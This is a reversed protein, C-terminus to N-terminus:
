LAGLPRGATGGPHNTSGITKNLLPKQLTCFHGDKGFGGTALIVARKARITQPTGSDKKGFRYGSQIQAGSVAGDRDVVLRSLLCQTRITVGMKALRAQQAHTIDTGSHNRTTLCRAVSHGGFRDLRDLYTVGLEHMTWQVAEAASDAVTRVLHPHNLGLGARLIDQYFLETSDEVGLQKQLPNGPAALGGDSLRTNGGIVKMKELVLVDAGAQRAEIAACLGAIGSGVILVDTQEDWTM